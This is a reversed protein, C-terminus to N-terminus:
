AQRILGNGQLTPGKLDTIKPGVCVCETRLIWINICQEASEQNKAALTYGFPHQDRISTKEKVQQCRCFISSLQTRCCGQRGRCSGVLFKSRKAHWGNSLRKGSGQKPTRFPPRINPTSTRSSELLTSSQPKSGEGFMGCFCLQVWFRRVWHSLVPFDVGECFVKCSSTWVWCRFWFAM